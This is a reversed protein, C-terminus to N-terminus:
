FTFMFWKEFVHDNKLNWFFIQFCTRVNKFSWFLIQFWSCKKMNAVLKQFRINKSFEWVFYKRFDLVNKRFDFVNKTNLSCNEFIRFIKESLVSYKTFIWFKKLFLKSFELCKKSFISSKQFALKKKRFCFCFYFLFFIFLLFYSPRWCINDNIKGKYCQCTSRM